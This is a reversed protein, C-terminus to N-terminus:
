LPSREIKLLDARHAKAACRCVGQEVALCDHCPKRKYPTFLTPHQMPSTAPLPPFLQQEAWALLQKRQQKDMPQAQGEQSALLLALRRDLTKHLQKKLWKTQQKRAKRARKEAKTAMVSVFLKTFAFGQLLRYM